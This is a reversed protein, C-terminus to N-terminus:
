ECEGHQNKYICENGIQHSGPLDSSSIFDDTPWHACNLASTGLIPAQSEEINQHWLSLEQNVFDVPKERSM